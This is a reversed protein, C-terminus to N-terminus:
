DGHNIEKKKDIFKIAKGIEILFEGIAYNVEVIEGEKIYRGLSPLLCECTMGIKMKRM